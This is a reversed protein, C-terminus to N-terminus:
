GWPPIWIEPKWCEVLTFEVPTTYTVGGEEEGGEKSSSTTPNMWYITFSSVKGRGTEFGTVECAWDSGLYGQYDKPDGTGFYLRSKEEMVTLNFSMSTGNVTLNREEVYGASTLIRAYEVGGKPPPVVTNNVMYWYSSMADAKLTGGQKKYFVMFKKIVAVGLIVWAVLVTGILVLMLVIRM